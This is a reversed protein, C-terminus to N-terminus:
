HPLGTVTASNTLTQLSDAAGNSPDVSNKASCTVKASFDISWPDVSEVSSVYDPVVKPDWSRRGFDNSFVGNYFNPELLGGVGLLINCDSDIGTGMSKSRVFSSAGNANMMEPIVEDSSRSSEPSNDVSSTFDEAAVRKINAASPIMEDLRKTSNDQQGQNFNVHGMGSCSQNLVGQEMSNPSFLGFNPDLMNRDHKVQAPQSNRRRLENGNSTGSGDCVLNLMASFTLPSAGHQASSHSSRVKTLYPSETFSRPSVQSVGHTALHSKQLLGAEVNFVSSVGVSAETVSPVSQLNNLGDMSRSPANRYTGNIIALARLQQRKLGDREEPVPVLLLEVAEKARRLARLAAADDLNDDAEIIVHLPESFVHEYGSKGRVEEEKDKRISGKGRIMIKCDHEISLSKLTAGRPGLLRGVFNYDPYQDAPIPVKLRRKACKAAYQRWSALPAPMSNARSLASTLSTLSPKKGTSDPSARMTRNAYEEASLRAIESNLISWLHPVSKQMPQLVAREQLLDELSSRGVCPSFSVSKAKACDNTRTAASQPASPAVDPTVNQPLRNISMTDANADPGCLPSQSVGSM